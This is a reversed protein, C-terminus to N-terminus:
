PVPPLGPFVLGDIEYTGNSGHFRDDALEQDGGAVVYAVRTMDAHYASVIRAFAVTDGAAALRVTTAAMAADRALGTM